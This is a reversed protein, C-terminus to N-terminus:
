NTKNASHNNNSKKSGNFNFKIEGALLNALNGILNLTRTKGTANTGVILNIKRIEFKNLHWYKPKNEYEKYELSKLFMKFEKGVNNRM